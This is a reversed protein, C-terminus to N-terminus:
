SGASISQGRIVKGTATTELTDVGVFRSPQKPGSLRERCFARLATLDVDAPTVTARIRQGRWEDPEGDVLCSRVAPFELLVAEVEEPSVKTGGVNVCNALRGVIVLGDPTMRGIDGTVFGNAVPEPDVQDAYLYGTMATLSRVAVLGSLSDAADHGPELPRLDVQVGKLPEGLSLAEQWPVPPRVCIPGTETTGYVEGLWGGLKTGVLEATRSDMPMGASLYGIRRAPPTTAAEALLRLLPTVGAMLTVDQERLARSLMGPRDPSAIVTTAGALPAALAALGFGYAHHLPVPCAMVTGPGMELATTYNEAEALLASVPRLAVKTRGSTGSTLQASAAGGPPVMGPEKRAILREGAVVSGAGPLLPWDLAAALYTPGALEENRQLEWESMQRPLPVAVADLALVALVDAVFSAAPWAVIGVRHGPGIGARRYGDLRIETLDVLGQATTNGSEEAFLVTQPSRAATERLLELPAQGGGGSV